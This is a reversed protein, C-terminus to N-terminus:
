FFIAITWVGFSTKLMNNLESNIINYVKRAASSIDIDDNVVKEVVSRRSSLPFISRAFRTDKGETVKLYTGVGFANQAKRKAIYYM